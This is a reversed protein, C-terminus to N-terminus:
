TKYFETKMLKLNHEIILTLYDPWHKNYVFNIMTFGVSTSKYIVHSYM